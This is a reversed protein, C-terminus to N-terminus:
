GDEVALPQFGSGAFAVFYDCPLQVAQKASASVLARKRAGNLSYELTARPSACRVVGAPM